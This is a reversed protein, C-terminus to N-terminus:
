KKIEIDKVYENNAPNRKERKILGVDKAYYERITACGEPTGGTATICAYDYQITVIVHDYNTAGILITTDVNITKGSIKHNQFAGGITFEDGETLSLFGKFAPDRDNSTTAKSISYEHVYAFPDDSNYIRNLLLKPLVLTDYDTM